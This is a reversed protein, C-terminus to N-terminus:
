PPDTERRVGITNNYAFLLRFTLGGEFRWFEVAAANPFQLDTM